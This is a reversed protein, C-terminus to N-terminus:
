SDTNTYLATSAVRRCRRDGAGTTLEDLGAPRGALRATSMHFVNM